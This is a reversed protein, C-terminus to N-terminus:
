FQLGVTLQFRRPDFWNTPEGFGPWTVNRQINYGTQNDTVNFVEGRLLVNFRHGVPFNQTYSLDLQYHADTTHIGAPEGYRSYDSRDWGPLYESYISRDWAEWPQGSQYIGYAGVTGNWPLQYFGYLKLMHRRDGRLNGERFNWIQRGGGDAVYSSGIYINADGSVNTGDQDFNGYYHSWVYSGRFFINAGRWEAETSIEYYRTYAGDLQAIVYNGGGLEARIEDLNPVYLERPVGEPPDYLLRADNNTDEWFNKARRHRAHIRGTWARSIQKDYGVAFEDIFRPSIGEQFWKGSAASTSRDVGILNGEADFLVGMSRNINRAWSAAQPLSTAAPYYRAYSAYVADKGNYSWTAALRPQIMGGFGIEKMLYKHGPALEFGSVNDPNKKLGQGYLKDNSFIVGLNFTWDKIRWVDNLEIDQSEIESHIPPIVRGSEDAVSAERITALFYIPIGEDTEDLGGIAEIWGWGNTTSNRDETGLSWRYGVHLEHNGLILDYGAQLSENSFFRDFLYWPAGVVGGGTRVGDGLYGYREILPAIFANYDDEGEIAQPVEFMGQQDLNDVDLRVSGDIAIPFDFVLDPRQTSDDKFNSYKASLYSSDSVVWTGELVTIGMTFDQGWSTSAAAYEGWVRGSDDTVSNRYSGSLMISDTPNFTLKGFYENRISQADPVEGYANSRNAESSTPRYYSVFFYLMEPILPGGLNAVLWDDKWDETVAESETDVAGTMGDTQIQYSLEGRFQNTGSKSLTNILFGGSRNFGIANAGGKVVAVEEIDHTSPQASLNGFLPRNVSAGDFEYVNDQGSGGASPGRVQDETYQVGPILKVLDRYQQGVPLVEIVEDSISAKIEASTTDITPTEATVIIEDQFRAAQMEVNVVANHQLHVPFSRKETAFGQLSFVLEYNGPPAAPIRYEGGGGTVTARAKPLVDATVQVIVGPLPDGAHTVMGSVSGTQTQQAGAVSCLLIGGVFIAARRRM